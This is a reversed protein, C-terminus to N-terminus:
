DSKKLKKPNEIEKKQEGSQNSKLIIYSISLILLLSAVIILQIDLSIEKQKPTANTARVIISELSIIADGYMEENILNEAEDLEVIFDTLLNSDATSKELKEVKLEAILLLNKASDRMSSYGQELKQEAKSYLDELNNLEKKNKSYIQVLKQMDISTSNKYSSGADELEKKLQQAEKKSLSPQDAHPGFSDYQELMSLYMKYKDALLISDLILSAARSDQKSLTNHALNLADNYLSLFEQRANYLYLLSHTHNQARISKKANLLSSEIDLTSLNNISLSSMMNQLEAKAADLKLYDAASEKKILAELSSDKEQLIILAKQYQGSDAYKKANALSDALGDSWKLLHKSWPSQTDTNLLDSQTSLNKLINYKAEINQTKQQYYPKLSDQGLDLNDLRKKADKISKYSASLKGQLYQTQALSLLQFSASDNLILSKNKLSDISQNFWLISDEIDYSILVKASGAFPKITFTWIFGDSLQNKSSQVTLKSTNSYVKLNKPMSTSEEKTDVRLESCSTLNELILTYSIQVKNKSDLASISLEDVKVDAKKIPRIFIKAPSMKTDYDLLNFSIIPQSSDDLTFRGDLIQGNSLTARAEGVDGYRFWPVDLSVDQIPAHLKISYELYQEISRDVDISLICKKQETTLPILSKSFHVEILQNPGISDLSIHIKGNKTHASGVNESHYSIDDVFFQHSKDMQCVFEFPSEYGVDLTNEARFIGGVDSLTSPSYSFQNQTFISNKCMDIIISDLILENTDKLLSEIKKRMTSPKQFAQLSWSDGDRYTSDFSKLALLTNSDLINKSNSVIQNYLGQEYSLYTSLHSKLSELEDSILKHEIDTGMDLNAMFFDYRSQYLQVDADLSDSTDLYQKFEKLLSQTRKMDSGIDKGAACELGSTSKDLCVLLHAYSKGL